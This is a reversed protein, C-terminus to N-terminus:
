SECSCIYTRIIVHHRGASQFYSPPSVESGRHRLLKFPCHRDHNRDDGAVVVGLARRWPYIVSRLMDGEEGGAHFTRLSSGDNNKVFRFGTLNDNSNVDIDDFLLYCVYGWGKPSRLDSYLWLNLTNREPCPNRLIRALITINSCWTM